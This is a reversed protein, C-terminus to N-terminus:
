VGEIKKGTLIRLAINAVGVAAGFYGTIAPNAVIVDTAMAGGMAGVAVM